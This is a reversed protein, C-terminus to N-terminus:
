RMGNKVLHKKAKKLMAKHIQSIRSESLGVKDAIEGMTYGEYYYMSIISRENKNCLGGFIDKFIEDKIISDGSNAERFDILFNNCDKSILDEGSETENDISSCGVPKYKKYLLENYDTKKSKALEKIAIDDCVEHGLESQMSEKKNQLTNYNIRVSRPVWDERRLGDIMSGWIRQRSFAEFKVNRNIDFSDIASYLGDVGFSSLAEVSVKRNIKMHLGLAIKKVFPFYYEILKNKNEISQDSHFNKWLQEHKEQDTM